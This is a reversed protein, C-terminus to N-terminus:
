SLLVFVMRVGGRPEPAVRQSEGLHIKLTIM